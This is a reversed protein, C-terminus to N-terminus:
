FRFGFNLLFPLDIGDNEEFLGANSFHKFSLSMTFDGKNRRQVTFGVGIQAQFSFHNAQKRSGLQNSSIYTPGLARVYFFPELSEAFWEHVISDPGPTLRLQPYISIAHLANNSISDTGVYTYGAGFQFSSRPSRVLTFFTYEIGLTRNVQDANIDGYDSGYQPGGGISATIEDARSALSTTVLATALLTQLFPNSLPFRPFPYQASRRRFRLVPNLSSLNALNGLKEYAMSM